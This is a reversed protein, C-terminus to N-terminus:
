ANQTMIAQRIEEPIEKEGKELEARVEDMLKKPLIGTVFKAAKDADTVLEYFFESYGETEKFAKLIQDDKEFRRGDLSKRGYSIDVLQEIIEIVARGKRQEALMDLKQDITYGEDTSLFKLFETKNLNFYHKEVREVGNYDEFKITECYM